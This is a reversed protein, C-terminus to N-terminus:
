SRRGRKTSLLASLDRNRLARTPLGSSALIRDKRPPRKLERLKSSARASSRYKRLDIGLIGRPLRKTLAARGAVEATWDPEWSIRVRRRFLRRLDPDTVTWASSGRDDRSRVVLGNQSLTRLVAYVKIPEDGSIKAIRYGTLPLTSNSLIALTRVRTESGFLATMAPDVDLAM